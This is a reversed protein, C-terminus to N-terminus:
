WVKGLIEGVFRRYQLMLAIKPCCDGEDLGRIEVRLEDAM